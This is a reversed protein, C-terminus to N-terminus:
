TGDSFCSKSALSATKKKLKILIMVNFFVRSVVQILESLLPGIYEDALSNDSVRM